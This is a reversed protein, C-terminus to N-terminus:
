MGNHIERHCNACVLICKDLEVKVREWSRTAGKQAIGFDKHSPETHHFELAEKCKDYNCRSCKGGKYEIAKDKVRRRWEATNHSVQNLRKRISAVSRGYRRSRCADSCMTQNGAKEQFPKTCVVCNKM